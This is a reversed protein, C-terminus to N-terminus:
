DGRLADACCRFGIEYFRFADGHVKVSSQCTRAEAWYRGKLSGHFSPEGGDRRRTWEEVNGTLDFVQDDGVCGAKAGSPSAQYLREVESVATAGAASVARAAAFLEPLREIAATQLSWPWGNLREQDYALWTADDRCRGPVRTDGYPYATEKPGECTTTWEDDFCLRRERAACWAAAEDFSLMVLPLEGAVNPAEYRDICFTDVEAMDAPCPSADASPADAAGDDGAAGAESADGADSAGALGAAGGPAGGQGAAGGAAGAGDPAEDTSGCAVALAVGGLLAFAHALRRRM